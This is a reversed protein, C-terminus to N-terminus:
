KRLCRKWAKVYFWRYEEVESGADRSCLLSLVTVNKGDFLLPKLMGNKEFLMCHGDLKRAYEPM